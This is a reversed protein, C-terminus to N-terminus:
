PHPLLRLRIPLVSYQNAMGFKAYLGTTIENSQPDYQFSLLDCAESVAYLMRPDTPSRSVVPFDVFVQDNVSLYATQQTDIEMGFRYDQHHILDDIPLSGRAAAAPSRRSFAFRPDLSFLNSKSLKDYSTPEDALWKGALEGPINDLTDKKWHYTGTSVQGLPNVLRYAGIDAGEGFLHLIGMEYLYFLVYRQLRVVRREMLKVAQLSDGYRLEVIAPPTQECMTLPVLTAAPESLSLTSREFRETPYFKEPAAALLDLRYTQGTQLDGLRLGDDSGTITIQWKGLDLTDGRRTYAYSNVDRQSPYYFSLSDGHLIFVMGALDSYDLGDVSNTANTVVYLKEEEM